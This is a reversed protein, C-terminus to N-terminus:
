NQTFSHIQRRQKKNPKTTSIPKSLAALKRQESEKERRLISAETEQYMMQALPASVRKGKLQKVVIIFREYGRHIEYEDNTKVSRSAKIRQGHFHVKGGNVAQSAIARTKFFRAAWLWKDLRVKIEDDM